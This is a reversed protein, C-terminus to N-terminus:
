SVLEIKYKVNERAEDASGYLGIGAMAYLAAGLVTTEKKDILKIPMGIAKARLQNWLSNKSGGGVVIISKANFNLELELTKLQEATKKALAVLAARYIEERKSHLGLGSIIGNSNLFDTNFEIEPNAIQSADNIIMKYFDTSALDTKEKTYILNTLWELLGSGLWQIGPNYFNNNVDFENTIGQKFALSNTSVHNTRAMLIEWTGSSLVVENEKAGSGFLAFQTDHGGAIVPIGKPIGTETAAHETLQGIVEGAQVIKPFKNELGTANFIDDSFQRSRYDTMMSTGAMTSETVFEGSLKHLFISSIFLFYESEDILEQRNENLWILKNITNFSFKHVGSIEYLRELSMYKDINNMIPVTRQCAWSIVPYLLKGNKTILSGDVGFTTITIGSVSSKDVEKLINNTCILLKNWIENVDWILGHEFYPDAKTQNTISHSAVLEGTENVAMSRVNTAGCDMVIIIKQMKNKKM